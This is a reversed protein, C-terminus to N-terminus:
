FREFHKVSVSLTEAWTGYLVRFVGSVQAKAAQQQQVDPSLDDIASTALKATNGDGRAVAMIVYIV